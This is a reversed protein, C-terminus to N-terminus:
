VGGEEEEQPRKPHEVAYSRRAMVRSVFGSMSVRSPQFWTSMTGEAGGDMSHVEGDRFVPM